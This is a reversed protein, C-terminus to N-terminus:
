SSSFQVELTKLCLWSGLRARCCKTGNMVPIPFKSQGHIWAFCLYTVKYM